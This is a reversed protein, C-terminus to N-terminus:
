LAFGAKTRQDDNQKTDILKSGLEEIESREVKKSTVTQESSPAENEDERRALAGFCQKIWYHAEVDEPDLSLTKHLPALAKKLLREREAPDNLEQQARNFLTKGLENLVVYDTSFDFKRDRPQNNPDLIREFNESAEDLHGNQANVLGTFWAVSWWP